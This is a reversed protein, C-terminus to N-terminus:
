QVDQQVAAGQEDDGCQDTQEDNHASSYACKGYAIGPQPRAGFELM